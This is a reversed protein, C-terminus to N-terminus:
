MYSKDNFRNGSKGVNWKGSMRSLSNHLAGAAGRINYFKEMQIGGLPNKTEVAPRKARVKYCIFGITLVLLLGGGVILGIVTFYSAREDLGFVSGFPSDIASANTPTPPTTTTGCDEIDNDYFPCTRVPGVYDGNDCYGDKKTFDLMFKSYCNLNCDCMGNCDVGKTCARGANAVIDDVDPLVPTCAAGVVKCDSKAKCADSDYKFYRCTLTPGYAGDDCTEDTSYVTLM